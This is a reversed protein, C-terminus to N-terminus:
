VITTNRLGMSDDVLEEVEPAIHFIVEQFGLSNRWQHIRQKSVGISKSLEDLTKNARLGEILSLFHDRGYSKIINEAVKFSHSVKTNLM